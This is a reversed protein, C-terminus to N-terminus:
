PSEQLCGRLITCGSSSWRLAHRPIALVMQIFRWRKLTQPHSCCVSGWSRYCPQTRCWLYFHGRKYIGFCHHIRSSSPNSWLGHITFHHLFLCSVLLHNRSRQLIKNRRWDSDLFTACVRIIWYIGLPDCPIYQKHKPWHWGGSIFLQYTGHSDSGRRALGDFSSRM